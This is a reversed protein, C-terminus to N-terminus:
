RAGKRGAGRPGVVEGLIQEVCKEMQRRLSATHDSYGVTHLLGHIALRLAEERLGVKFAKSQRRAEDLSIYIDGVVDHILGDEALDFAIVDTTGRRGLARRNLAAMARDNVFTISVAWAGIGHRELALSVAKKIAPRLEKLPAPLGRIDLTSDTPVGRAPPKM